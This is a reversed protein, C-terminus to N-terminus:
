ATPAKRGISLPKRRKYNIVNLIGEAWVLEGGAHYYAAADGMSRLIKEAGGALLKARVPAETLSRRNGDEDVLKQEACFIGRVLRSDITREQCLEAILPWVRELILADKAMAAYLAQICQVEKSGAKTGARHGTSALLRQVALATEDRAVIQAAFSELGTIPKRNKQTVLFSAAETSIDGDFEFIVVPVDKIDSRSLVAALRHQGDFVWLSGDRRRAVLLVGFAAWDLDAAIRLRKSDKLQRQYTHDVRLSGKPVYCLVGPENRVGWKYREVKDVLQATIGSFGKAQMTM